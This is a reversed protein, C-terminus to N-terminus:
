AHARSTPRSIREASLVPEEDTVQARVGACAMLELTRRIVQVPLYYGGNELAARNAASAHLEMALRDLMRRDLM